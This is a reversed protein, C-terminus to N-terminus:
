LILKSLERKLNETINVGFPVKIRKILGRHPIQIEVTQTGSHHLLLNKIANLNEPSTNEHKLSIILKEEQDITLPTLDDNNKEPLSINDLIQDEQEPKPLTSLSDNLAVIQIKENPNYLKDEKAKAIMTELSVAQITQCILQLQNARYELKGSIIVVSEPICLHRYTAFTNPFVAVDLRATPDELTLYAMQSNTKTTIKKVQILIGVIKVIKGTQTKNLTNILVAKKKLYKSLGQLPHGSVYLGLFSKEWSLRQLLSAPTTEPLKLSPFSQDESSLMSFIDTQNENSHTQILRAYRMIEEVNSAIAKREGLNDLAGSYAMAEITKKNLLSYPVRKALDDINKFDGSEERIAIIKHVTGIGIGKIAALGFRINQDDVVTFNAMSENISPPLIKIGIAEAEAIEIVLRDTNDRDSTMLAAMFEAPYHSKLYATRYAIMSYCTAHAKNFGYGAFPEIVKEFVEKAFQKSHNKNIAGKIFKIRQEELLEPKKKGVAKRLIDAEGPTFDAFIRTIQLIQEQYVAVGYTEELISKFSDHLYKVKKANHKGKIYEPIWEMPGPRYLANMAILDELRTPKLEKLYRRMGASEFQFIGTTAGKAMLEFTKEDDLPLEDLIINENKTRQIIKLAYDLITLNKLGLFDMKLLGIDEIDHM